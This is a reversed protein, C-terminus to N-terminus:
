RVDKWITLWQTYLQLGEETALYVIEGERESRIMFGKKLLISLHEEFEDPEMEVRYALEQPTMPAELLTGLIRVFGALRTRNM